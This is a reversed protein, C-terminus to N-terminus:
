CSRRFISQWRYNCALPMGRAANPCRRKVEKVVELGGSRPMKLDTLVLWPKSSAIREMAEQGNAAQIVAYGNRRLSETLALRMSPEDDVVLVCRAESVAGDASGNSLVANM